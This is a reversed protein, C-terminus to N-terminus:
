AAVAVGPETPFYMREATHDFDGGAGFRIKQDTSVAANPVTDTDKLQFNINGAAIKLARVQDGFETSLSSYDLGPAFNNIVRIMEGNRTFGAKVEGRFVPIGM